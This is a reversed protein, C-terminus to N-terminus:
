GDSICQRIYDDAPDSQCIAQTESEMEPKTKEGEGPASNYGVRGVIINSLQISCRSRFRIIVAQVVKKAIVVM